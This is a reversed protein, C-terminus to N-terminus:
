SGACGEMLAELQRVYAARLYERALLAQAQEFIGHQPVAPLVPAAPRVTICPVGIPLREAAAELKAGGAACGGLLGALVCVLVCAWSYTLSHPRSCTLSCAPSRARAGAWLCAQLYGRVCLLAPASTM